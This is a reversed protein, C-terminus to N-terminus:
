DEEPVDVRFPRVAPHTEMPQVGGGTSRSPTIFGAANCLSTLHSPTCPSACSGLVRYCSFNAGWAWLGPGIPGPAAALYLVGPPLRDRDLVAMPTEILLCM